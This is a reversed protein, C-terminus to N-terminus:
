CNDRSGASSFGNAKVNKRIERNPSTFHVPGPSGISGNAIEHSVEVDNDPASSLLDKEAEEERSDSLMYELVAGFVAPDLDLTHLQGVKVSRPAKSRM